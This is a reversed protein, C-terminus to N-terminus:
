RIVSGLHISFLLMGAGDVANFRWSRAEVRFAPDEEGLDQIAKHAEVYADEVDDVEVGTPDPISDSRDVLNFYVKM